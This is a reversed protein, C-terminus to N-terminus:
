QASQYRTISGVISIPYGMLKKDYAASRGALGESEKGRGMYRSLGMLYCVMEAAVIDAAQPYAPDGFEDLDFAIGRIREYDTEARRIFLTIEADKSTDPTWNYTNPTGTTITALTYSLGTSTNLFTDFLEGVTATTPAASGLIDYLRGITKVLSVNTIM